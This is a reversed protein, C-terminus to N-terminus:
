KHIIPAPRPLTGDYHRQDRRLVHEARVGQLLRCDRSRGERPATEDSTEGQAPKRAIRYGHRTFGPETRLPRRRRERPAPSQRAIAVTNTPPTIIESIHHDNPPRPFGVGVDSYKCAASPSAVDRPRSGSSQRQAIRTSRCRASSKTDILAGWENNTTDPRDISQQMKRSSIAVRLQSRSGSAPPCYSSNPRDPGRCPYGFSPALDLGSCQRAPWERAVVARPGRVRLGIATADHPDAIVAREHRLSQGQKRKSDLIAVSLGHRIELEVHSHGTMRHEEASIPAHKRVHM